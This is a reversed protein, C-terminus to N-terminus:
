ATVNVKLIYATQNGTVNEFSRKYVGSFTQMGTGNAQIQWMHLGPAGVLTTNPALYTSNVINLGSTVSANWTYGTSPNEELTIKFIDGTKVSVTTNNNSQNFSAVANVPPTATPTASPTATPTATPTVTSTCASVMVMGAIAIVAMGFLAISKRDM